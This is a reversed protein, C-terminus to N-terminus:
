RIGVTSAATEIAPSSGSFGFDSILKARLKPIRKERVLLNMRVKETGFLENAVSNILESVDVISALHADLKQTVVRLLKILDLSDSESPPGVTPMAFDVKVKSNKWYANLSPGVSRAFGQYTPNPTASLHVIANRRHRIFTMTDSLGEPPLPYGSATLVRRYYREPGERGKEPIVLTSANTTQLFKRARETFGAAVEYSTSLYAGFSAGRNAQLFSPLKGIRVHIRPGFPNRNYAQSTYQSLKSSSLSQLQENFQYELFLFFSYQDNLNALARV